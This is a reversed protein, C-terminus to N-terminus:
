VSMKKSLNVLMGATAGWIRHDDYPMVYYHRLVGQWKRSERRHNKPDMIFDLPVEFVDAVEYEDISLEFGPTVIGVIPTISFGTGTEYVDLAGVIEICARYLGIEEETERLATDIPGTDQKEVKGGPFSVQRAHTRLHHTRETLIVTPGNEHNVIPVLVAAPSLPRNKKLAAKVAPNMDHDGTTASLSAIDPVDLLRQRFQNRM